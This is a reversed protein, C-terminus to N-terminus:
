IYFARVIAALSVANAFLMLGAALMPVNARAGNGQRGLALLLPLLVPIFYRGQLGDVGGAGLATAALYLAFSLILVVGLSLLLLWSRWAWGLRPGSGTGGLVVLLLAAMGAIWALAVPGVSLWGFSFLTLTQDLLGAPRFTHAFAAPFALPHAMVYRLQDAPLPRGPMMPATLGSVLTMWGLFLALAAGVALLPTLAPQWRRVPSLFDRSRGAFLAVGALPLYVFKALTLVAALLGAIIGDRWNWPRVFAARLGVAVLLAACGIVVGDQGFAAASAATMPLLGIAMLVNRGMPLARMALAILVFALAANLVRGLRLINEVSLGLAQGSWVAVVQPGYGAPSYAASGIFNAFSRPEQAAPPTARSLREAWPVPNAGRWAHPALSGLEAETARLLGAPMDGGIQNGRKEAIVGGESLQWARFLHQHEDPTQFPPTLLAFALYLLPALVLYLRLPDRWGASARDPM